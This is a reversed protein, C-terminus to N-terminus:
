ALGRRDRSGQIADGIVEQLGEYPMRKRPYIKSLGKDLTLDNEKRILSM